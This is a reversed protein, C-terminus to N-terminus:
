FASVTRIGIMIPSDRQYLNMFVGRLYQKCISSYFIESTLPTDLTDSKLDAVLNFSLDRYVSLVVLLEFGLFLLIQRWGM